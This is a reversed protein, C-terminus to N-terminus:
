QATRVRRREHRNMGMLKKIQAEMRKAPIQGPAQPRSIFSYTMRSGFLLALLRSPAGTSGMAISILNKDRNRQTFLLLRGVEEKKRPTIAIKVWDAGGSRAKRLIANLAPDSPISRFNHYSIIVRKRKQHALPVLKRRLGTSNLEVDIIQVLPLAWKFLELRRSDSLSRGGGEKSTRVTAILRLGLSRLRQIKGLVYDQDLHRFRDIRIELLLPLGHIAGVVKQIQQPTEQDTVTFAVQPKLFM